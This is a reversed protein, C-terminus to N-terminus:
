ATRKRHTAAQPCTAFHSIFLEHGANRRAIAQRERLVSAVLQGGRDELVVNGQTNPWADIPMRKGTNTIVWRIREGCTKCSRIDPLATM